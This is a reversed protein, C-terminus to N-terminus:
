AAHLEFQLLHAFLSTARDDIARREASKHSTGLAPDIVRGLVSAKPECLARSEFIRCTADPDIGNARPENPCRHGVLHDRGTLAISELRHLFVDRHSPDPAGLLNRIRNQPEAAVSGAVHSALGDRYVAAEDHASSSSSGASTLQHNLGM